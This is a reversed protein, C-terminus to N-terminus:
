VGAEELRQVRRVPANAALYNARPAAPAMATPMARGSAQLQAAELFQILEARSAFRRHHMVINGGVTITEDSPSVGVSLSCNVAVAHRRFEIPFWVHSRDAIIANEYVRIPKAITLTNRLQSGSLVQAFGDLLVYGEVISNIVVCNASMISTGSFSSRILLASNRVIAQDRLTCSTVQASDQVVSAGFMRTSGSIHANGFVRASEAIVAQDRVVARGYVHAHHKIVVEGTVTANGSVQAWGELRVDGGVYANDFVQCRSGVYVSNEVVATSAVWGKGNEHRRAPVRGRGDKFDHKVERKKRTKIPKIDAELQVIPPETVLNTEATATM